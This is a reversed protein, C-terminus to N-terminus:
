SFGNIAMLLYRYESRIGTVPGLIDLYALECPAHHNRCSWYWTCGPATQLPYLAIIRNNKYFLMRPLIGSNGDESISLHKYQSVLVKFEDSCEHLSVPPASHDGKLQQIFYPLIADSEQAALILQWTM